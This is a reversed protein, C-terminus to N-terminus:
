TRAVAFDGTKGEGDAVHDVAHEAVINRVGLDDGCEFFEVESDSFAVNRVPFSSATVAVPADCLIACEFGAEELIIEEFVEAFVVGALESFDAKLEDSGFEGL